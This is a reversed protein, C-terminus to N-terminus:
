LAPEGPPRGYRHLMSGHKYLWGQAKEPDGVLLHVLKWFRPSHNMERLHAVEHAAVYDLVFPPALILRWSFSLTGTTSCSGWRSSTDRVKVQKPKVGLATAFVDVRRILEKRAERKLWDELRRPAHEIGGAVRIIPRQTEADLWVVGRAGPAHRVAHDRGRFPVTAGPEIKMRPPLQALREAIWAKEQRAFDIAKALSRSSPAVVAVEGTSPHVKVILRRARPNIRVKVPVREGDIRLLEQHTTHKVKTM